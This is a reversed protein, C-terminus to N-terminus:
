MVASATPVVIKSGITMFPYITGCDESREGDTRGEEGSTWEEAAKSSGSLVWATLIPRLANM